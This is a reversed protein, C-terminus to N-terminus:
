QPPIPKGDARRGHLSHTADKCTFFVADADATAGAQHVQEAPIYMLGGAEVIHKQGDTRFDLKGELVYIWQENPHLHLDGMKGAPARMLAVIMREGEVCGGFVPSYGPGGMIQNVKGFDFVYEGPGARKAGPTRPGIVEYQKKQEAQM